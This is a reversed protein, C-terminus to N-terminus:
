VLKQRRSIGVLGLLGTAFLWVAAPVPVPTQQVYGSFGVGTDNTLGFAVIVSMTDYGGILNISGTANEISQVTGQSNTSLGAGIDVGKDISSFPSLRIDQSDVIKGVGSTPFVNGGNVTFATLTTGLQAVTDISGTLGGIPLSFAFAFTKVSGSSNTAGLGFGLLPDINGNMSNLSVTYGDGQIEGPPNSLVINGDADAMYMGTMVVSGDVSISWTCDGSGCTSISSAWVSRGAAFTGILLLGLLFVASGSRRTTAKM